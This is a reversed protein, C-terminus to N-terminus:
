SAKVEVHKAQAEPLKPVTITLVGDKMDASIKEADVEEPLTFSRSFSGYSREYTYYTDGKQRKEEERSGSVTLRNQALKVDLNKAEIGPVDAKFIFADKTEKVDFDPSMPELEKFTRWPAMMEFPDWRLMRRMLEFPRRARFFPEIETAEPQETKQEAPKKAETEKQISVQGM